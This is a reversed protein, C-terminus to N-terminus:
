RQAGAALAVTARALSASPLAAELISIRERGGPAAM